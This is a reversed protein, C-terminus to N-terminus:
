LACIPRIFVAFVLREFAQLRGGFSAPEVVSKQSKLAGLGQREILVQEAPEDGFFVPKQEDDAGAYVFIPHVSRRHPVAIEARLFNKFRRAEAAIDRYIDVSLAVRDNGLVDFIHGLKEVAANVAFRRCFAKVSQFRRGKRKLFVPVLLHFLYELPM